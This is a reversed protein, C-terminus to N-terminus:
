EDMKQFGRQYWKGDFFEEIRYWNMNGFGMMAWQRHLEDICEQLYNFSFDFVFGFISTTVRWM